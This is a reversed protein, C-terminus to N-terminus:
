LNKMFYMAQSQAAMSAPDGWNTDTGVQTPSSLDTDTSTNLGLSGNKDAGWMWLTGDTKVGGAMRDDNFLATTWNTDTGVQMPSSYQINSNLGLTGYKNYGASWLTGDSKVGLFNSSGATASWAGGAIQAPSSTREAGGNPGTNMMQQGYGNDGWGWLTEDTKYVLAFNGGSGTPTFNNWDTGPVQKPSSYQTRNNHGLAGGANNGWTWLTGDTKLAFATGSGHRIDKWDTGTGVQM